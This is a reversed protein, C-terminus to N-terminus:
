AQLKIEELGCTCIDLDLDGYYKDCEPSHEAFRSIKNLTGKLQVLRGELSKKTKKLEKKAMMMLGIEKKLEKTLEKHITKAEQLDDYKDLDFNILRDLTDSSM